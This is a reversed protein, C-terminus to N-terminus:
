THTSKQLYSQIQQKTGHLVAHDESVIYDLAQQLFPDNTVTMAILANRRLGHMKARTLPTGGFNQVYFEQNMTAVDFLRLNQVDRIFSTQMTAQRNYPCALQCIDCGFWFKAFHPWFKEPVTGRHEISWYSLCLNADLRYDEHLAGTPCNVQCRKCTGCGGAETRQEPDVTEPLDSSLTLNTLVEGLLLFSGKQPHIYLTNKGIFGAETRAALARELIPASDICIRAEPDAELAAQNVFRRWAREASARMTKHYDRFRAYQAVRPGDNSHLKDGTFYNFAFVIATEASPLLGRPDERLHLNEQMFHMGAHMREGLWRELHVIDREPGLEVVGLLELGESRFCKFLLDRM